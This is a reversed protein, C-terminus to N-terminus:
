DLGLKQKMLDAERQGLEFAKQRIWQNASTEGDRALRENYEPVLATIAREIRRQAEADLTIEQPAAQQQAMVAPTSLGLILLGAALVKRM